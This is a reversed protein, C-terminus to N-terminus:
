SVAKLRSPLRMTRLVSLAMRNWTATDAAREEVLIALTDPGFPQRIAILFLRGHRGPKLTFQGGTLGEKGVLFDVGAPATRPLAAVDVVTARTDSGLQATSTASVTIAGNRRLGAVTATPSNSKALQEDNPSVPYWGTVVQLDAGSLNPPQLTLPADWRDVVQWGSTPLQFSLGPLANASRFVGAQAPGEYVGEAQTTAAHPSPTTRGSAKTAPSCASALGALALALAIVASRMDRTM